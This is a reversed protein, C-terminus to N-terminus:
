SGPPESRADSELRLALWGLALVILMTFGWAGGVLRFTDAIGVYFIAGSFAIIGALVSGVLMLLFLRGIRLGEWYMAADAGCQPCVYVSATVRAGCFPCRISTVLVM